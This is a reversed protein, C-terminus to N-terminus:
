VYSYGLTAIDRTDPETYTWPDMVADAGTLPPNKGAHSAMSHWQWWLRDLNAHHMWFIPDAPSTSADAMTGGVWIHVAGHVGNVSAAFPGFDPMALITSMNSAITALDTSSKPARTVVLTRTPTTVTPTVGTLWAPIAQESAKTWDWYPISVDPHLARLANELQLLFVRHWPLLRDNTHQMHMEAHIDVLQGYTGNDILTNIACLFRGQETANLVAQDKRQTPLALNLWPPLKLHRLDQIQFRFMEAFTSGKMMSGSDPRMPRHKEAPGSGNPSKIKAHDRKMAQTGKANM